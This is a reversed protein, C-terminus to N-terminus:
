PIKRLTRKDHKAKNEYFRSFQFAKVLFVFFGIEM